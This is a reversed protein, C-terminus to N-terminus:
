PGFGAQPVKGGEKGAAREPTAARAVTAELEAVRQRSSRLQWKLKIMGPLAALFSALAGAVVSVLIVVALSGQFTWTLFKLATPGNNQLAFVVALVAVALSLFLAAQM